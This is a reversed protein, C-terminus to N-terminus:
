VVLQWEPVWSGHMGTTGVAARRTNFSLQAEAHPTPTMGGDLSGNSLLNGSTMTGNVQESM